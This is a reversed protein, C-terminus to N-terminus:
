NIIVKYKKTSKKYYEDKLFDGDRLYVIVTCNKNIKKEGQTYKNLRNINLIEEIIHKYYVKQFFDTGDFFFHFTINNNLIENEDYGTILDNFWDNKQFFDNIKKIQKPVTENGKEQIIINELNTENYVKIVEQTNYNIYLAIDDSEIQSIIKEVKEHILKKYLSSNDAIYFFDFKEQSFVQFSINSILIFILVRM